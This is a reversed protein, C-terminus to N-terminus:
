MRVLYFDSVSTIHEDEVSDRFYRVLINATEREPSAITAAEPQASTDMPSSGETFISDRSAALIIFILHSTRPQISALTQLYIHPQFSEGLAVCHM